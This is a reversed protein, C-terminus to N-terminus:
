FSKQFAIVGPGSSNYYAARGYGAVGLTTFHLDNKKVSFMFPFVSFSRQEVHVVKGTKKLSFLDSYPSIFLSTSAVFQARFQSM